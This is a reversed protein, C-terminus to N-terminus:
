LDHQVPGRFGRVQHVARLAMTANFSSFTWFLIVRPNAKLLRMKLPKLLLLCGSRVNTEGPALM